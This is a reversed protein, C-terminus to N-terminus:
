RLPLHEGATGSSTQAQPGAVVHAVAQMVAARVRTRIRPLQADDAPASPAGAGPLGSDDSRGFRHSHVDHQAYCAWCRKAGLGTCVGGDGGLLRVIFEVNVYCVLFSLSFLMCALLRLDWHM